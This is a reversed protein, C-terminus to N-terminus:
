PQKVGLDHSTWKVMQRPCRHHTGVASAWQREDKWCLENQSSSESRCSLRSEPSHGACAGWPGGIGNHHARGMMGRFVGWSVQVGNTVPHQQTRQERSEHTLRLPTPVKDVKTMVCVRPEIVAQTFLSYPVWHFIEPM